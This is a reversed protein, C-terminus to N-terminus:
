RNDALFAKPDKIFLEVAREHEDPNGIDFWLGKFDYSQVPVGRALLSRILDPLDMNRGKPIHDRIEPRFAYVGMSVQYELSPKEIYDSVRGHEGVKVIGLNLKISRDCRCVTATAGRDLHFRYLERFDLSTLIDGNMVLFSDDLGDVLSIPGATGLPTTEQSYRIPIGWRSGDGFYAQILAALYGVALVIESCGATKLQRVLIELIPLDGIPMLPKPLVTTYPRLRTGTGGALIVAKM